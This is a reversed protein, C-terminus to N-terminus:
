RKLIDYNLSAIKDAIKDDTVNTQKLEEQVRKEEEILLKDITKLTEEDPIENLYETSERKEYEKEENEEEKEEGQVEKVLGKVTDDEADEDDGDEEYEDEESSETEKHQKKAHQKNSINKQQNQNSNVKTLISGQL